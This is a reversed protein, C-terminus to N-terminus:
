KAVNQAGTSLRRLWLSGLYTPAAAFAMGLVASLSIAVFLEATQLRYSATLIQYGLGRDAGTFEAVLAGVVALSASTRLGAILAPASMPLLLYRLTMGYPARHFRFMEILDREVASFAGLLNVVLPFFCVTAAMAIKSVMGTGFWLAFLPALAIIPLSQLGTLTPLSASQLRRSPHLSIAVAVAALNGIAFGVAAEIATVSTDSLFQSRDKFFAKAVDWPAPLLFPPMLELATVTAWACFLAAFGIMGAAYDAYWPRSMANGSSALADRLKAADSPMDFGADADIADGRAKLDTSVALIQLMPTAERATQVLDAVEGFPLGDGILLIRAKSLSVNVSSLDHWEVADPRAELGDLDGVGIISRNRKAM